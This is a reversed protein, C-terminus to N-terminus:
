RSIKKRFKEIIEPPISDILETLKKEREPLELGQGGQSRAIFGKILQQVLPNELLKSWGGDDYDQMIQESLEKMANYDNLVATYKGTKVKSKATQQQARAKALETKLGLREIEQSIRRKKQLNKIFKFM